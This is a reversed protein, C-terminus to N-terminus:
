SIAKAGSASDLSVCLGPDEGSVPEERRLHRTAAVGLGGRSRTSHKPHGRKSLAQSM